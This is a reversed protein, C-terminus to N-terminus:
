AEFAAVNSEILAKLKPAIMPAFGAKCAWFAFRRSGVISIRKM